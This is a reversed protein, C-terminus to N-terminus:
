DRFFYLAATLVTGIIYITLTDRVFYGYAMLGLGILMPKFSGNKKGYMFAVFGISGFLLGGVIGWVSFGGILDSTTGEGSSIAVAENYLKDLDQAHGSVSYLLLVAIILIITRM